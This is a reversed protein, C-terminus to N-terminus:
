GFPTQRLITLSIPRGAAVTDSPQHSCVSPGLPASLQPSTFFYRSSLFSLGLLASLQPCTFFYRSSLFSLSLCSFPPIPHFLSSFHPSSSLLFFPQSFLLLFIYFFSFQFLLARHFLSDPLFYYHVPPLFHSSLVYSFYCFYSFLQM